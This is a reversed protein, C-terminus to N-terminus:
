MGEENISKRRVEGVIPAGVGRGWGGTHFVERFGGLEEEIKNVGEL